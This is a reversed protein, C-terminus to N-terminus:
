LQCDPVSGEEPWLEDELGVREGCLKELRRVRAVAKVAKELRRVRKVAKELRRVRAVARKLRLVRRALKERLFVRPPISETSCELVVEGSCPLLPPRGVRQWTAGGDDDDHVIEGNVIRPM